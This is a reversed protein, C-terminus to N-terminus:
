NPGAPFSEAKALRSEANEYLCQKSLNSVLKYPLLSFLSKVSVQACTSWVQVVEAAIPYITPFNQVIM